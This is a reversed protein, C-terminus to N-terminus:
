SSNTSTTFSLSLYQKLCATPSASSHMTQAPVPLHRKHQGLFCLNETKQQRKRVGTSIKGQHEQLFTSYILARSHFHFYHFAIDRAYKNERYKYINCTLFLVIPKRLLCVERKWVLPTRPSRCLKDPRCNTTWFTIHRLKCQHRVYTKSM